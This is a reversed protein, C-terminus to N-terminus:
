TGPDEGPLNPTTDHYFNDLMNLSQWGVQELTAVTPITLLPHLSTMGANTHRNLLGYRPARANTMRVEIESTRLRPAAIHYSSRFRSVLDLQLLLMTARKTNPATIAPAAIAGAKAPDIFASSARLNTDPLTNEKVQTS